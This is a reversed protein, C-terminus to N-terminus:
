DSFDEVVIAGVPAYVAGIGVRAYHPGLVNARHEPSLYFDRAISDISRDVALNEAAYGFRYRVAAMRAFPDKGEPTTHAFYHRAAMDAAHESALRCLMSDLRLPRLHRATREANITQLLYVVDDSSSAVPAASFLAACAAALPIAARVRRAYSPIRV